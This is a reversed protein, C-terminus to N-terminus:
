PIEIEGLAARCLDSIPAVILNHEPARKKLNLFCMPCLTVMIEAGAKSADALNQHKIRNSM